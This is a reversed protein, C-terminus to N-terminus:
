KLLKDKSKKYLIEIYHLKDSSWGNKSAAWILYKYIGEIDDDNCPTSCWDQNYPNKFESIMGNIHGPLVTYGHKYAM